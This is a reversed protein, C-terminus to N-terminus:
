FNELEACAALIDMKRLKLSKKLAGLVFDKGEKGTRMKRERNNKWKCQFPLNSSNPTLNEITKLSSFFVNKTDAKDIVLFFYDKSDDPNGKELEERMKKLFAAWGIGNKIGAEEPRKGTLAYFIGLKCSLNDPFGGATIKINVPVFFGNEGEISFDYWERNNKKNPDFIFLKEEKFFPSEKAIKEIERKVEAESVASSLRGDAIGFDLAAGRKKLGDTLVKLAFEAKEKEGM